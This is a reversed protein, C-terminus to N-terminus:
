DKSHWLMWAFAFSFAVYDDTEVLPSDEFTAGSLNDYRINAGYWFNGVRRSLSAKFYYGSFGSDAEYRARDETVFEEAVTYYYDHYKNTAYLAGLSVKGIHGGFIQPEVYTFRPNFNYGIADLGGDGVTFVARLPLRLSWGENFNSGSLNVNFSPGFEFASDLEDMGERLENDESDGNLSTEGSVNFEIRDSEFFLGRVGNRDAKLFDGRYILFPIPYAQVQTEKSGRYDRLVQGGVAAGLEIKPLKKGTALPAASRPTESAADAQGGGDAAFAAVCCLSSVTLTAAIIIRYM